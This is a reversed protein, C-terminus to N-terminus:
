RELLARWSPVQRDDGLELWRLAYAVRVASGGLAQDTGPAAQGHFAERGFSAALMQRTRIPGLHCRVLDVERCFAPAAWRAPQGTRLELLRTLRAADLALARHASV